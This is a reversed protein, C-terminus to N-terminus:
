YYVIIGHRCNKRQTDNKQTEATKKGPRQALPRVIARAKESQHKNRSCDAVIGVGLSGSLDLPEERTIPITSNTKAAVSPLLKEGAM